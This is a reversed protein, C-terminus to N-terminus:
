KGAVEGSEAYKFYDYNAGSITASDVTDVPHTSVSGTRGFISVIIKDRGTNDEPLLGKDADSQECVYLHIVGRSAASDIVTGRPSFMVDMQNSYAGSNIWAAPLTSYTVNLGAPTTAPVKNCRDLDIVTGKPLLTPDQNPLVSPPLLLQYTLNIDPNYAPTGIVYSTSTPPDAYAVTLQMTPPTNLVNATNFVTYLTGTGTGGKILIQAGDSLLGLNYLNAWNTPNNSRYDANGLGDFGSVQNVVTLGSTPDKGFQLQIAGQTWPATPKIYALSSVTRPNTPDLLLRVGRAEKAYIARDRAGSMVSQIQRGASRVKDGSITLNIATATMVALLAMIGVVMMLEILTFAARHQGKSVAHNRQNMFM